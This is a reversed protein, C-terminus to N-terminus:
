PNVVKRHTLYKIGEYRLTKIYQIYMRGKIRFDIRSKILKLINVILNQILSYMSINIHIKRWKEEIESKIEQKEGKLERIKKIQEENLREGKNQSRIAQLRKKLPWLQQMKSYTELLAKEVKLDVDQSHQKDHYKISIKETGVCVKCGLLTSLLNLSSTFSRSHFYRSKPNMRHLIRQLIRKHVRFSM